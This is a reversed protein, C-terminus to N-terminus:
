TTWEDTSRDLVHFAPVTPWRRPLRSPQRAGSVNQYLSRARELPNMRTRGEESGDISMCHVVSKALKVITRMVNHFAPTVTWQLDMSAALMGHRRVPVSGAADV